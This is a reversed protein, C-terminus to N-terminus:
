LMKMENLFAASPASAVEETNVSSDVSVPIGKVEIQGVPKSAALSMFVVSLLIIVASIFVISHKLNKLM